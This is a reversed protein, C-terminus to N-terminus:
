YLASQVGTTELLALRLRLRLCPPFGGASISVYNFKCIPSALLGRSGAEAERRKAHLRSQLCYAVSEADNGLHTSFVERGLSCFSLSFFPSYM